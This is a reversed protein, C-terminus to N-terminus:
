KITNINKRHYNYLYYNIKKDSISVYVLGLGTWTWDFGKKGTFCYAGCSSSTHHPYQHSNM